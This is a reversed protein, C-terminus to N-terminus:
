RKTRQRLRGMPIKSLTTVGLILCTGWLLTLLMVNSGALLEIGVLVQEQAEAKSGGLGSVVFEFPCFDIEQYLYLGLFSVESM